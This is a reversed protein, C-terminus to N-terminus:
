GEALSPGETTEPAGEVLGCAVLTCCLMPLVGFNLALPPRYTWSGQYGVFGFGRFRIYGLITAEMNKDMIGM